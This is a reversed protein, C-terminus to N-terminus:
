KDITFINIGLKGHLAWTKIDVSEGISLIGLRGQIGVTLYKGLDKGMEVALGFDSKQDLSVWRDTYEQYQDGGLSIAYFLGGTVYSSGFPIGTLVNITLFDYSSYFYSDTPDVYGNYAVELFGCDLALLMKSNFVNNIRIRAGASFSFDVSSNYGSPYEGYASSIGPNGFLSIQIDDSDNSQANTNQFVLCLAFSFIITITKTYNM